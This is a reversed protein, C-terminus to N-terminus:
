YFLDGTRRVYLRYYAPELAEWLVGRPDLVKDLCGAFEVPHGGFGAKFWYLGWRTDAAPADANPIAVLDYATMGHEQAWQMAHFQLLPAPMLSREETYSAGIRYEAKRGFTQILVAALPRGGQRAFFIHAHGAEIMRDWAASFYLRPRLAFGQRRATHAFMDYLITRGEPSDDQVVTVGKRRALNINYRTKSKMRALLADPPRDLDVVMTTRFQMDWRSKVYGRQSFVQRGPTHGDYAQQARAALLLARAEALRIDDDAADHENAAQTGREHSHAGRRRVATILRTLPEDISMPLRTPQGPGALVESEVKLIVAGRARAIAEMGRLMTRVANADAWDIWPGKCCYAISSPASRLRRIAVQGVGLVHNGDTLALRVPWWGQTAKFAGWAYTQLVHGGGPSEALLRDWTTADVDRLEEVYLM